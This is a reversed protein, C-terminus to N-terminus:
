DIRIRPTDVQEALPKALLCLTQVGDYVLELSKKLIESYHVGFLTSQDLHLDLAKSVSAFDSTHSAALQKLVFLWESSDSPSELVLQGTEYLYYLDDIEMPPATVVRWMGLSGKWPVTFNLGQLIGTAILNQLDPRLDVKLSDCKGAYDLQQIVDQLLMAEPGRTDTSMCGGGILMMKHVTNFKLDDECADLEEIVAQAYSSYLGFILNNRLYYFTPTYVAHFQHTMDSIAEEYNYYTSPDLLPVSPLVQSLQLVESSCFSVFFLAIWM